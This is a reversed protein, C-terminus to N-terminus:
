KLILLTSGSPITLTRNEAMTPDGFMAHTTDAGNDEVDALDIDEDFVLPTSVIRIQWTSSTLADVAPGKTGAPVASTLTQADVYTKTAADNDGDPAGLGTIRNNGMAVDGSFSGGGATVTGTATVNRFEDIDKNADVVVAKSAAVTGNTVGDLKNLDGADGTYGDLANIEEPTSTIATTSATDLVPVFGSVNPLQVTKSSDTPNVVTLTTVIDDDTSGEFVINSDDLTLDGTMTDGTKDLDRVFREQASYLVQNQNNNLDQARIASGAFFTTSPNETDTDRFIRVTRGNLPASTFSLTTANAFTFATNPQPDGNADTITVKVDSENIYPFTFSFDTENGDGTATNQTTIAM